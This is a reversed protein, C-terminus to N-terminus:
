RQSNQKTAGPKEPYSSTNGEGIRTKAPAQREHFTRILEQGAPAKYLFAILADITDDKTARSAVRIGSIQALARLDTVPLSRLQPEAEEINMDPLQSAMQSLKSPNSASKSERPAKSSNSLDGSAEGLPLEIAMSDRLQRAIAELQDALDHTTKKRQKVM